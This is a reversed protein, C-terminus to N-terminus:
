LVYASSQPHLSGSLEESKVMQSRKKGGGLTGLDCTRGTRAPSVQFTRADWEKRGSLGPSKGAAPRQDGEAFARVGARTANLLRYLSERSIRRVLPNLLWGLGEPLSRSLAIYEVQVYVGGDMQQFRWYSDLRWLYGHGQGVPSEHEDPRDPNEVEAIRTSYSRSYVRASDVPFYRVDFDANLVVTRLSKKFFQVSIKFDEGDRRLLKSRRIDPQYIRAHNDYDQVVALAQRLTAGPIFVVGVWHHVLGEPVKIARGGEETELRQILIQGQRLQAYSNERRLEGLGDVWLYPEGRRLEEEMRAETLRVYRDFVEVTRPKLEVASAPAALLSTVALLQVLAPIARPFAM